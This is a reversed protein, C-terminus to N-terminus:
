QVHVATGYPGALQSHGLTGLFAEEEKRDNMGEDNCENGIWTANTVVLYHDNSVEQSDENQKDMCVQLDSKEEKKSKDGMIIKDTHMCDYLPLSV